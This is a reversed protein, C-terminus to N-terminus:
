VTSAPVLEIEDMTSWELDYAFTEAFRRALVPTVGAVDVKHALLSAMSTTQSGAMGCPVIHDFYSLDPNVNLALGHMTVGRSVKVGIAAIKADDVWVGTPRGESRGEIGLEALTAIITSELNRVYTLPGLSRARLDVIPYAVLQGPGHYTAEGGRDTYHVEVGLKSLTLEDALVEDGKARRGLTYVHPHELTLLVDPLSGEVVQRHLERQLQWARLYSVTGPSVAICRDLSTM